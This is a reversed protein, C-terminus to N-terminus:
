GAPQLVVRLTHRQDDGLLLGYRRYLAQAADNDAGVEVQVARCGRRRCETLLADLAASAAGRRRHTPCVFLDDIFGSLGGFEMAFLVSLVVHGIAEGDSEILWVAGYLPERILNEFAREAWAQDLPFSSEAYFERMLEVLQPIDPLSAPRASVQAIHMVEIGNM